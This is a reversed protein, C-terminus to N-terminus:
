IQVLSLSNEKEVCSQVMNMINNLINELKHVM